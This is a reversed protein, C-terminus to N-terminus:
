GDRTVAPSTPTALPVNRADRTLWGTWSSTFSSAAHGSESCAGKRMVSSAGAGDFASRCRRHRLYGVARYPGPPHDTLQGTEAFRDTTVPATRAFKADREVRATTSCWCGLQLAASHACRSPPFGNGDNRAELRTASILTEGSRRLIGNVLALDSV